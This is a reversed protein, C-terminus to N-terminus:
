RARSATRRRMGALVGIGLLWGLVMGSSPRGAAVSCGAEESEATEPAAAVEVEPEPAMTPLTVRGIKGSATETFWINGDPGATINTPESAATPICLESIEGATTIIGIKNADRMTFWLNGDAGAVIGYPFAAATPVPYGALTAGDPSLRAVRNAGTDTFWIGGDPGEAIDVLEGTTPVAFQALTPFQIRGIRGIGSNPAQTFWVTTPTTAATTIARAVGLTPTTSLVAGAPDLRLVSLGATLWVIPTGGDNTAVMDNTLVGPFTDSVFMGTAADVRSLAPLGGLFREAIWLFGDPGNIVSYPDRPFASQASVVGATTINALSGDFAEPATERSIFWLRGQPGSIISYPKTLRTSFETIAYDGSAGCVGAQCTDAATCANADDCATGDPKAPDSCNGTAPDCIGADHCQDSATCVVGNGGVCVGAQCADTQTCASGDSCATGDPRQAGSCTGTAPDCVGPEHCADSATCVVPAGAQCTGAQCTDAQTCGNADSCATGNAKAPNSCIGTTPDCVGPDHCQDPAPCAVGPGGACVGAQCTDMATCTNGDSCATGNPRNPNSCTGTAPNCIGPDHCQDAATCAVPNGGTCVGAQCSDTQTCGNADNCAAGNAANPNSCTGNAPNCVGAVHCQDSATCVVPNAGACVGAQCSDTQTCGNGDSCATGNAVPANVCVTNVCSDTTCTSNDNCDAATTCGFGTNFALQADNGFIVEQGSIAGSGLLRDASRVVNRAIVLARLQVDTGLTVSTNPEIIGNVILRLNGAPQPAPAQIRSRDAAAVGTSVRLTSAALAIVRADPNLRLSQMSYTGGSLNLIGSVNITSFNGPALTTTQGTNVNVATTGANFAGTPLPRAPPALYPSRPGTTALPSVDLFTAGLEGTVARPRLIIRPSLLVEGVGVRSDMGVTLTNTATASIGVDGGSVTNRDGVTVNGSALVAYQNITPLPVTLLESTRAAKRGDSDSCGAIFALIASFACLAAQSSKAYFM